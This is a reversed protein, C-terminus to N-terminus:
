ICFKDICIEKSIQDAVRIVRAKAPMEFRWSESKLAVMVPLPVLVIDVSPDKELVRLMDIVELTLGWTLTVDTTGKIGPTESEECKLAGMRTREQSCAPIVSGDTFNFPHPSSFNAVTIGNTLTTRPAPDVLRSPKIFPKPNFDKIVVCHKPDFM